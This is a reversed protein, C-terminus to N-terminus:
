DTATSAGGAVRSIKIDFKMVTVTFVKGLNNETSCLEYYEVERVYACPPVGRFSHGPQRPLWSTCSVLFWFHSCKCGLRSEFERDWCNLPWLGLGYVASVGHDDGM